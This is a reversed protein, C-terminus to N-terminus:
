NSVNNESTSKTLTTSRLENDNKDYETIQIKEAKDKTTPTNKIMFFHLQTHEVQQHQVM